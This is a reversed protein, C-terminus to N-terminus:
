DYNEGKGELAMSNSIMAGILAEGKGISAIWHRPSAVLNRNDSLAARRTKGTFSGAAAVVESAM